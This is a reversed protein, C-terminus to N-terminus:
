RAKAPAPCQGAALVVRAEIPQRNRITSLYIRTNPAMKSITTAFDRWDMLPAGNIATLVDGAEIGAMAAPGGPKPRSFIAGYLETMGLSDAFAQTMPSVRVGISGCNTPAASPQAALPWVVTGCGLLAFAAAV